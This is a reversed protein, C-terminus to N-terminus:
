RALLLLSSLTTKAWVLTSAPTSSPAASVFSSTARWSVKVALVSLALVNVKQIAVTVLLAAQKKSAM